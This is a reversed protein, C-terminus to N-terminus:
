IHEVGRRSKLKRKLKRSCNQLQFRQRQCVRPIDPWSTPTIKKFTVLCFFFNIFFFSQNKQVFDHIKGALLCFSIYKKLVTPFRKQRQQKYQTYKVNLKPFSTFITTGWPIKRRKNNNSLNTKVFEIDRMHFTGSLLRCFLSLAIRLKPFHATAVKFADDQQKTLRLIM